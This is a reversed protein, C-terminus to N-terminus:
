RKSEKYDTGRSVVATKEYGCQKCTDIAILDGFRNRYTRCNLTAPCRPCVIKVKSM